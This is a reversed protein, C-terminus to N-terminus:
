KFGGIAQLTISSSSGLWTGQKATAVKWSLMIQSHHQVTLMLCQIQPGRNGEAAPQTTNDLSGSVAQLM